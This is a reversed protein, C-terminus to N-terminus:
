GEMMRKLQRAMKISTTVLEHKTESGIKANNEYLRRATDMDGVALYLEAMIVNITIHDVASLGAINEEIYKEYHERAEQAAKQSLDTQEYDKYLWFLRHWVKAIRLTANEVQKLCNIQLYHSLVAEDFTHNMENKYGTFGENNIFQNGKLRPYTGDDPLKTFEQYSDCYNCNPCVINNYLLINCNSYIIRQDMTSDAEELRSFIPIKGSFANYCYPCIYKRNSFVKSNDLKDPTNLRPHEDSLLTLAGTDKKIEIISQKGVGLLENLERIRHSLQTMTKMTAQAGELGPNILNDPLDPVTIGTARVSEITTVAREGLTKLMSAAMEPASELLKEFNEKDIMLAASEEEAIITASRPWGDIVSMEGFFKGVPIGAVRMPFDTFSNIYVGFAGKLAIYMTEGPDNQMFLMLNKEFHTVKGIKHLWKIDAM